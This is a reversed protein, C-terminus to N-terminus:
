RREYDDDNTDSAMTEAWHALFFKREGDFLRPATGVIPRLTTTMQLSTVILLLIWAASLGTARAKWHRLAARLVRHSALACAIWVILHLAGIFSVLTSSQTFVWAIPAFSALFIAVWAFMAAIVGLVEHVRVRAGALTAFVYLSPFCSAGCLAAAALVKVPAAWWQVGGSFSGVVLGYAALGTFSLAVLIALTRPAREAGLAAITLQPRRLLADIPHVDGAPEEDDTLSPPEQSLDPNM